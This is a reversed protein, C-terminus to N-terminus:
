PIKAALAPCLSQVHRAWAIAGPASPHVGDYTQLSPLPALFHAGHKKALKELSRNREAIARPDFVTTGAPKGEEVPMIGVVIVTRGRAHALLAEYAKEWEALPASRGRRADNVGGAIVVIEPDLRPVLKGALPEAEAIGTASIAANFLPKGCYETLASQEAISDGLLLAGRKPALESRRLLLAERWNRYVEAEEAPDGSRSAAFGFTAALAAALLLLALAALALARPSAGLRHSGNM